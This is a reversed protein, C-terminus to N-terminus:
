AMIKGELHMTEPIPTIDKDTAIKVSECITKLNGPKIKRRIHDRREHHM